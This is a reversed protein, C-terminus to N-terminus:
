FVTDLRHDPRAKTLRGSYDMGAVVPHSIGNDRRKGVRYGGHKAIDPRGFLGPHPAEGFGIAALQTGLTGLPRAPELEGLRLAVIAAGGQCAAAVAAISRGPDDPTQDALQEVPRTQDLSQEGVVPRKSVGQPLNFAM